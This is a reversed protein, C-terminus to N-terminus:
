RIAFEEITRTKTSFSFGVKLQTRAREREPFGLYVQSKARKIVVKPLQRGDLTFPALHGKQDTQAMAEAAQRDTKLEMVHIDTRSQGLETTM